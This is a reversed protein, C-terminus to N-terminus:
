ETDTGDTRPTVRPKRKRAKSIEVVKESEEARRAELPNGPRVGSPRQAPRGNWEDGSIEGSELAELVAQLRAKETEHMKIPIAQSGAIGQVIGQQILKAGEAQMQSNQVSNVVRTLWKQLFALKELDAEAFEEKARLMLNNVNNAVAKCCRIEGEFRFRENTASELREGLQKGLEATIGLKVESKALNV